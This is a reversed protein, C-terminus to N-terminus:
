CWSALASLRGAKSLQPKTTSESTLLPLFCCTTDGGNYADAVSYDVTYGLDALAAIMLTSILMNTDALCTMFEKGMCGEDWHGDFNGDGPYGDQEIPPSGICGWGNAWM